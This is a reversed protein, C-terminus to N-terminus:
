LYDDNLSEWQLGQWLPDPESYYPPKKWRWTNPNLHPHFAGQAKSPPRRKGGVPGFNHWLGYAIAKIAHNNRDVPIDSSIHGDRNTPFSYSRFESFVNSLHPAFLIRPANSEPDILFSRIRDIGDLIPVANAHLYIGAVELWVERQSRMAQHTTGSIDIVGSSVTPWWPKQTTIRAIEEGSKRHAYVYDYVLAIPKNISPDHTIHVALVVYASPDWGPDVWIQSDLSPDFTARSSIHISPSFEPFVLSSSPAPEAGFREIFLNPPYENRLAVIEPDDFGGPFVATNSWTPISFAAGYANPKRWNYWLDAYWPFAREFTGAMILWGKSQSLRGLARLYISFSQQAAEALIIGRLGRSALKTADSSTRTEITGISDFDAFSAYTDSFRHRNLSLGLSSLADRIYTFEANALYYTPGVVWYLSPPLNHTADWVMRAVAEM